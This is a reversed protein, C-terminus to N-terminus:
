VCVAGGELVFIAFIEWALAHGCPFSALFRAEVGAWLLAAGIAESAEVIAFVCEREAEDGLM